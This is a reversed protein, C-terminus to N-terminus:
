FVVHWKIVCYADGIVNSVWNCWLYKKDNQTLKGIKTYVYIYLKKLMSM